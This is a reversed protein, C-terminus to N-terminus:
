AGKDRHSNFGHGISWLDLAKSHPTLHVTVYQTSALSVIHTLHSMTSINPEDSWVTHSLQVHSHVVMKDWKHWEQSCTLVKVNETCWHGTSDSLLIQTESYNNVQLLKTASIETQWSVDRRCFCQRNKKQERKFDYKNETEKGTEKSNPVTQWMVDRGCMWQGNEASTQLSIEEATTKRSLIITQAQSTVSTM